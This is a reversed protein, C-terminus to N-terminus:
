LFCHFLFLCVIFCFCVFLSLFFLVKLEGITSHLHHLVGPVYSAIAVGGVTGAHFCERCVHYSGGFIAYVDTDIITCAVCVMKQDEMEDFADDVQLTLSVVSNDDIPRHSMSFIKTRQQLFAVLAKVKDVRLIAERAAKERTERLKEREQIILQRRQYSAILAELKRKVLPKDAVLYFDCVKLRDGPAILVTAGIETLFDIVVARHSNQNALLWEFTM